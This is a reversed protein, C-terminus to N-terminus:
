AAGALPNLNGGHGRLQKFIEAQERCHALVREPVDVHIVGQGAQMRQEAIFRKVEEDSWVEGAQIIMSEWGLNKVEAIISAQIRAVASVYQDLHHLWGEFRAQTALPSSEWQRMFEKHIEESKKRAAVWPFNGDHAAIHATEAKDSKKCADMCEALTPFRKYRHTIQLHDVGRELAERDFQRLHKCYVAEQQDNLEGFMVELPAVFHQVVIFDVQNGSM